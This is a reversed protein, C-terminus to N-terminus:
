IQTCQRDGLLPEFTTVQLKSIKQKFRGEEGLGGGPLVLGEWQLLWAPWGLQAKAAQGRSDGRHSNLTFLVAPPYCLGRQRHILVNHSFLLAALCGLAWSSVQCADKGQVNYGCLMGKKVVDSSTELQTQLIENCREYRIINLEAEQLEETTEQSSDTSIIQSYTSRSLPLSCSGRAGM